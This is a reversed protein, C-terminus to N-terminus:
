VTEAGYFKAGEATLRNYIAELTIPEFYDMVTTNETYHRDVVKLYTPRENNLTRENVQNSLEVVRDQVSDDGNALQASLADLEQRLTETEADYAKADANNAEGLREADRTELNVWSKVTVELQSDKLQYSKVAHYRTKVGKEDTIDLKLAM